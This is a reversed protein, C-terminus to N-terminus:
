NVELMLKQVQGNCSKIKLRYRGKELALAKRDNQNKVEIVDIPTAAENDDSKYAFVLYPFKINIKHYPMSVSRKESLTFLWMPRGTVYKTPPFYVNIDYSKPFSSFLEGQSNKFVSIEKLQKKDIMLRYPNATITSHTELWAEQNITLPNIGSKQKIIAALNGIIEGDHVKENLHGYGCHIVIKAQPNKKLFQLINNAQGAERSYWKKLPNQENEDQKHEYPLVTYGRAISRRILNGYQPERFYFGSSVLPYKRKNLSKNKEPHLGEIFVTRYGQKYLAELLKSTFLRNQVSYHAENIIVIQNTKALTTIELLANAPKYDLFARNIEVKKKNLKKYALVFKEDTQLVRKYEGIFSFDVAYQQLKRNSTSAQIKAEIEKSFLYKQQNSQANLLQVMSLLGLYMLYKM